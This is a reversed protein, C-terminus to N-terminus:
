PTLKQTYSLANEHTSSSVLYIAFAQILTTNTCSLFDAEAFAQEMGTKLMTLASEKDRGLLREAEDPELTTATTFYISFVLALTDPRAKSPDDIVSYVTVEDTPTHTVKVAPEVNQVFIRWLQMAAQKPPHLATLDNTFNSPNSLIGM